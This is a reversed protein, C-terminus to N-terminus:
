EQIAIRGGGYFDGSVQENSEIPHGRNIIGNKFVDLDLKVREENSCVDCKDICNPKKDGFYNAM